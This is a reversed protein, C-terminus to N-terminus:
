AHSFGLVGSGCFIRLHGGLPHYLDIALPCIEDDSSGRRDAGEDRFSHRHTLAHGGGSLGTGLIIGLMLLVFHGM